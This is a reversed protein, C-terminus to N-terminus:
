DTVITKVTGDGFKIKLDGDASDVYLWAMGPLIDPATVGDILAMRGLYAARWRNTSNGISYTDDTISAINNYKAATFIGDQVKFTFTGTLTAVAGDTYQQGSVTCYTCDSSANVLATIFGGSQTHKNQGTDIGNCASNLSVLTAGRCGHFSNDSITGTNVGYFIVGYDTDLASEFYNNVVSVCGSDNAQVFISMQNSQIINGSVWHNDCEKLRVGTAVTGGNSIHNNLIRWGSGGHNNYIGYQTYQHIYNDSITMEDSEWYGVIGDRVSRITNNRITVNCVGSYVDEPTNGIQIGIIDSYTGIDGLLYLQEIVPKAYWGSGSVGYMHIMSKNSSGAWKIQSANGNGQLNVSRWLDTYEITLTDTIKYVGAPFIVTGNVVADIAAQIAATDDTVGDGTAGFDMVSVTQRLKYEVTQSLEATGTGSGVGTAIFHLGPTNSTAGILTYNTTGVTVIRYTDGIVFNGATVTYGQEYQISDADNAAPPQASSPINDYTAITVDASTKLIFKYGIGNTLWIEGGSPVRGASDLIIPNTHDVTGTNSTYTELSSTTGAYYSYIKGGTLPNGNNDFFQAGAGGLPSLFVAM